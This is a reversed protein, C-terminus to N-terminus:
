TRSVPCNGGVFAMEGTAALVTQARAMSGCMVAGWDGVITGEVCALTFGVVEVGLTGPPEVPPTCAGM